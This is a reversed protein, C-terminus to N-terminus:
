RLSIRNPSYDVIKPNKRSNCRRCGLLPRINSIWNSGAVSLLIAHDPSLPADSDGCRLCVNGYEECLVKFEAATYRVKCELRM